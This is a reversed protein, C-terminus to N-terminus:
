YHDLPYSSSHGCKLGKANIQTRSSYHGRGLGNWDQDSPLYGLGSKLLPGSIGGITAASKGGANIPTQSSYHGRGLGNWDQDSPLYKQKPVWKHDGTLAIDPEPDWAHSTWPIIQITAANQGM